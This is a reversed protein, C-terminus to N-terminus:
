NVLVYMYTIIDYQIYSMYQVYSQFVVPFLFEQNFYILLLDTRVAPLFSLSNRQSISINLILLHQLMKQLHQDVPIAFSPKLM